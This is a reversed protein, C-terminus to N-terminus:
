NSTNPFLVAILANISDPSKSIGKSPLAPSNKTYILLNIGSKPLSLPLACIVILRFSKGDSVSADDGSPGNVTVDLVFFTSM